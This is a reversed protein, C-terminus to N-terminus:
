EEETGTVEPKSTAKAVGGYTLGKLGQGGPKLRALLDAATRNAEEGEGRQPEEDDEVVRLFDPRDRRRKMGPRVVPETKPPKKGNSGVVFALAYARDQQDAIHALLYEATGWRQGPFGLM